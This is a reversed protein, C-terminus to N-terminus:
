APRHQNPHHIGLRRGTPSALLVVGVLLMPIAAVAIGEPTWRHLALGLVAISAPEFVVRPIALVASIRGLLEPPTHTQVFTPLAVDAAYAVGIGLPVLVAAGVWVNPVVGLVGFALAELWTMAIILLGWRRPLGTFAAALTGVLQGVGWASVLVALGTASSGLAAALTPLGVAFLGSYSLTAASVVLLVLRIERDAWALGCGERISAWTDRLLMPEPRHQERVHPVATVTAAAIGFTVANGGIAVAPGYRATLLGGLLPGVLFSLQEVSGQIANGPAFQDRPLLEPLVSEAAPTFFAGSVGMAAAAAALFATDPRGSAVAVALAAMVVARTVHCASMVTRPRLRDTVAGGLLLLVGRPIAQALMVTSLAGISGTDLVLWALAIAFAADGVMSVGEGGVVVLFRRNRLPSGDARAAHTM